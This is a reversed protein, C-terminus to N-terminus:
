LAYYVGGLIVPRTAGTVSPANGPKQELTQKAFWAFAMAEIWDPDVGFVKTSLVTCDTQNQMAQMLVTNHVGGGCVLINGSTMHKHADNIISKATLALLTAQTDQPSPLNHKELWTLNFYERGTSKPTPTKFYPDDLLTQLLTENVTGAHSWSGYRDFPQGTHKECWSDLLCNGPGTDFGTVSKGPILITINAIGGINVIVRPNSEDRFIKEHFAPALPAGQGCVAMDRRRFDAVTTIRTRAAIINPDAIQLTFPHKSVPHHRITQGHSGIADVDTSTMGQKNLLQLTADAFHNGLIQDLTGLRTIEDFGPEHFESLTTKLNKPLPHEHTAILRPTPTSFDVLAADIGNLSTGSMLGVIKM